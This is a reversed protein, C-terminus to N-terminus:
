YSNIASIITTVQDATLLECIPLSVVSDVARTDVTAHCQTPLKSFFDHDSCLYPYHISWPIGLSELHNCFSSRNDAQVVFQHWAPALSPSVQPLKVKPNKIEELYRTAINDKLKNSTTLSSLRNLLFGCQLEDLRSNCGPVEHIYKHNSGYNHILKSRNFLQNDNTCIAGGDGLAGLSKGPYFSYTVADAYDILPRSAYELGHAQAADIILPISMESALHRLDALNSSLGFLPVVVMASVNIDKSAQAYDIPDSQYTDWNTKVALPILGAKTVSLWTAIFTFDPVLVVSNPPLELAQLSITLADLGNGVGLCHTSKSFLSFQKCFELYYSGEIFQGSNLVTSLVKHHQDAISQHINKLDLFPFIGDQINPGLDSTTM